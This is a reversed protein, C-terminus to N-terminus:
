KSYYSNNDYHCCDLLFAKMEEKQIYNLPNSCILCEKDLYDIYNEFSSNSNVFSDRVTKRFKDDKKINDSTSKLKILLYEGYYKQLYSSPNSIYKFIVEPSINLLLYNRLSGKLQHPLEKWNDVSYYRVCELWSIVNEDKLLEERYSLKNIIQILVSEDIADWTYYFAYDRQIVAVLMVFAVFVDLLGDSDIEKMLSNMDKHTSYELLCDYLEDSFRHNIDSYSIKEIIYDKCDRLDTHKKWLIKLTDTNIVKWKATSRHFSFYFIVYVLVYSCNESTLLNAFDSNCIEQNSIIRSILLTSMINNYHENCIVCGFTSEFRKRAIKNNLALLAYDKLAYAIYEECVNGYDATGNDKEKVLLYIVRSELDSNDCSSINDWISSFLKQWEDLNQRENTKQAVILNHKLIRLQWRLVSFPDIIHEEIKLLTYLASLERRAIYLPPIQNKRVKFDRNFRGIEKTKNQIYKELVCDLIDRYWYLCKEVRNDEDIYRVISEIDRILLDVARNKEKKFISKDIIVQKGIEKAIHNMILIHSCSKIEIAVAACQYLILGMLIFYFVAILFWVCNMFSLLLDGLYQKFVVTVPKYISEWVILVVIMINSLRGFFRIRRKVYYETINIGLFSYQEGITLYSALFQYFTLLIGYVTLQGFVVTFYASKDIYLSNSRIFSLVTECINIM